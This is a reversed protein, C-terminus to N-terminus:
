PYTGTRGIERDRCGPMSFKPDQLSGSFYAQLIEEVPGCKWPILNIGSSVVMKSLPNSIAGCILVDAGLALLREARSSMSKKPLEYSFRTTEHGLDSEVVLIRRAFDFVPSVETGWVPIATRM